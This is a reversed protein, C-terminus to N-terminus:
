GGSDMEGTICTDCAREAGGGDSCVRRVVEVAAGEDGPCDDMWDFVRADGEVYMGGRVGVGGGYVAGELWWLAGGACVMM